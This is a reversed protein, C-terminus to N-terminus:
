CSRWGFVLFTRIKGDGCVFKNGMKSARACCCCTKIWGKVSLGELMQCREKFLHRVSKMKVLLSLDNM